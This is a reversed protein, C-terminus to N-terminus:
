AKLIARRFEEVGIRDMMRGMREQKKAQAKYFDIVKQVLQLVQKTDLDRAIEDALRPKGAGSGGTMLMWGKKRGVLAIDKICTEACQNPCGSIGIKLKGPLELGHYKKDLEFGVNLSDQQGLRCFTTGPCAKVSRVCVGVAAGPPMGLEQWVQDIDEEKLGVLAIRAASTVKLAACDFKEAVDAIRRLTAPSVVGCPIHPAIAYSQKDQQLIAGKEGDKLM